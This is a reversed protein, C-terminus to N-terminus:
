RDPRHRLRLHLCQPSRVTHRQQVAAFTMRKDHQPSATIRVLRRAFQHDFEDASHLPGLRIIPVPKCNLRIATVFGLSFGVGFRRFSRALQSFTM